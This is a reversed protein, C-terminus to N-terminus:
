LTENLRNTELTQKLEQIKSEIDQTEESLKIDHSFIQEGKIFVIELFRTPGDWLYPSSPLKLTFSTERDDYILDTKNNPLTIFTLVNSDFLRKRLFALIKVQEDQNM